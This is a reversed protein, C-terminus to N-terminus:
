RLPSSRSRSCPSPCNPAKLLENYDLCGQGLIITCLALSIELIPTQFPPPGSDFRSKARSIASSFFQDNAREKLSAMRSQGSSKACTFVGLRQSCEDSFVCHRGFSAQAAWTVIKDSM